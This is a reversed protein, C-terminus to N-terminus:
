LENLFAVVVTASNEAAVRFFEDMEEGATESGSGGALDSASRFALFPTANVACVQAVAASEMDVILAQHATSLETRMPKSDVFTNGSVGVGGVLLRPKREGIPELTLEQDDVLRAIALMEQDVPLELVRLLSDSQPVYMSTAGHVFGKAGVYGYDHQRWRQAVVIDGIHVSTDIGGAIGSFIVTHPHYVDIMRQTTMAANTMGIGSAALVIDHGALRGIRVERGLHTETTDVTMQETLLEGEASFAYLILLPTARDAVQQKCAALLALAAFLATLPRFLPRLM